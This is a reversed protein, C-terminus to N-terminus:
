YEGVEKITQSKLYFTGWGMYGQGSNSYPRGEGIGVQIGARMLLITVEKDNTIDADYKIRVNAEWGPDWMARAHIDPSKDALRVMHECYHPKGKTIKILPTNEIRDFGDAQIFVAQKIEKQRSAIISCATVMAKRLGGVPIGCWGATAIHKSLEYMEQFNKGGDFKTKSFEKKEDKNMQQVLKMSHITKENFRNQVYPSDGIITYHATKFNPASININLKVENIKVNQIKKM